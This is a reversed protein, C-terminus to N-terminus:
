AKVKTLRAQQPGRVAYPGIREEFVEAADRLTVNKSRSYRDCFLERLAGVPVELLQRFEEKTVLDSVTSYCGQANTIVLPSDVEKIEYGPIAGPTAVALQKARQRIAKALADYLNLRPLISAMQEPTLKDVSLEINRVGVALMAQAEVCVGNAPCHRCHGGPYRPPDKRETAEYLHGRIIPRLRELDERTYKVLEPVKTARPQVIAAYLEKVIYGKEYLHDYYIMCEGALQWNEDAVPHEGYLSKLNLVLATEGCLRAWDLQGSFMKTGFIELWFRTEVVTYDPDGSETLLEAVLKRRIEDAARVVWKKDDDVDALSKSGAWM